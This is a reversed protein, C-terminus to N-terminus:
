SFAANWAVGLLVYILWVSVVTGLAMGFSIKKPDAARYGIALLIIEWFSFM